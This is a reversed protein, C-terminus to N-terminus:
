NTASARRDAAAARHPVALKALFGDFPMLAYVLMSIVMVVLLFSTGCRPHFTTFKQANEVTVPKGSEFNFVVKHEAGHYEFM